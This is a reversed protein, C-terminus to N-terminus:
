VKEGKPSSTLIGHFSHETITRAELAGGFTGIM